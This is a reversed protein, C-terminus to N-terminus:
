NMNNTNISCLIQPVSSPVHKFTKMFCSVPKVYADYSTINVSPLRNCKRKKLMAVDIAIRIKTVYTPLFSSLRVDCAGAGSCM